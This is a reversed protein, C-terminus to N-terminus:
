LKSQPGTDGKIGQLGISSPGPPGPPGFVGTLGKKLHFILKNNYNFFHINGLKLYFNKCM